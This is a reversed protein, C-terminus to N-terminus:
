QTPSPIICQSPLYHSHYMSQIPSPIICQSPPHPFSVNVPCIIPIICQSPPTPFSVNVPHSPFSVEVPHMSHNSPHIPVTQLSVYMSLAHIPYHIFTSPFPSPLISLNDHIFSVCQLSHFLDKMMKRCVPHLLLYTAIGLVLAHAFVLSSNQCEHHLSNWVM